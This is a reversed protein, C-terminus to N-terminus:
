DIHMFSETRLTNCCSIRLLRPSWPHTMHYSLFSSLEWKMSFGYSVLQMVFRHYSWDIQVSRFVGFVAGFIFSEFSCCSGVVFVSSARASHGCRVTFACRPTM